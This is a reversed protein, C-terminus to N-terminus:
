AFMLYLSTLNIKSMVTLICLSATCICLMCECFVCVCMFAVDAHMYEDPENLFALRYGSVSSYMTSYIDRALVKCNTAIPHFRTVHHLRRTKIPRYRRRYKRGRSLLEAAYQLQRHKCFTLICSNLITESCPGILLSRFFASFTAQGSLIFHITPYLVCSPLQVSLQQQNAEWVCLFICACMM